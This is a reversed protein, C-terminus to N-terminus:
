IQVEQIECNSHSFKKILGTKLDKFVVFENEVSYDDVSFTLIIGQLTKVIIKYKTSM